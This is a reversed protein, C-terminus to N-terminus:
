VELDLILVDDCDEWLCDVLYHTVDGCVIDKVM